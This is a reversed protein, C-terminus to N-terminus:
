RRKGQQRFVADSNEQYSKTREEAHQSRKNIKNREKKIKIKPKMGPFPLADATQRILICLLERNDLAEAGVLMSPKAGPYPPAEDYCGKILEAGAETKKVYLQDDCILAVVKEGCYLAYEGFMKRARANRLSSLQDIIYEVTSERTSMKIKDIFLLIAV